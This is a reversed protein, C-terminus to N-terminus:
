MSMSYILITKRKVTVKNQADTKAKQVEEFEKIAANMIDKAEEEKKIAEDLINQKETAKNIAEEKAKQAAEIEKISDDIANIINEEKKIAEKM